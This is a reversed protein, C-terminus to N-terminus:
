LYNQKMSNIHHLEHGAIHYVAARVSMVHGNAVGTRTFMADNFSEFLTITARRVADYEELIDEITRENANSEIVYAEQDFGPLETPDNRAFRLARYAYIREDDIVHTLIEKINWEGEAFRKTLKAESLGGFLDKVLQLNDQMHQLILGDDPFLGIYMLTYPAYEGEQPKSIIKM